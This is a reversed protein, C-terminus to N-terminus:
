FSDSEDEDDDPKPQTALMQDEKEALPHWEDFSMFDSTLCHDSNPRPFDEDILFEYEPPISDTFSYLRVVEQPPEAYSERQCIIQRVKDNSPRIEDIYTEGKELSICVHQVIVCGRKAWFDQLALIAEQFYM